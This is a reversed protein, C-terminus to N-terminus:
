PALTRASRQWQRRARLRRLRYTTVPDLELAEVSDLARNLRQAYATPSLGWRDAVEQEKAGGSRLAYRRELDLIEAVTPTM